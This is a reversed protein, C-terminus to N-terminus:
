SYLWFVVKKYDGNESSNSSFGNLTSGEGEGVAGLLVAEGIGATVVSALGEM